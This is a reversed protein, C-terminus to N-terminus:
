SDDPDSVNLSVNYSFNEDEVLELVVPDDLSENWVPATENLVEVVFVKWDLNGVDDVVSINVSYNGEGFALGSAHDVSVDSTL